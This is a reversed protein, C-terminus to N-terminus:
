VIELQRAGLEPSKADESSMSFKRLVWRGGAGKYLNVYVPQYYSSRAIGMTIDQFSRSGENFLAEFLSVVRKKYVNFKVGVSGPAKMVYEVDRVHSLDQEVSLDVRAKVVISHMSMNKVIINYVRAWRSETWKADILADVSSYLSKGSFSTNSLDMVSSLGMEIVGKCYSCQLLDGEKFFNFTGCEGCVIPRYDKVEEVSKTAKTGEQQWMDEQVVPSDLSGCNQVVSGYDLVICDVKHPHTRLGRGVTQVYLTASKMPRMLVVADIASHDFGESVKTVFVLHRLDEAKFSDLTAHQERIPQQSHIVGARQGMGVLQEYVLEAHEINICSWVVSKRDNVNLVGIADDVQAAIKARERTVLEALSKESYDGSGAVYRLGKLSFGRKSSVLRAPVLHGEVTLPLIGYRFDLSPWFRMKGTKSNVGYIYEGCIFPTATVGLLAMKPSAALLQKYFPPFQGEEALRHAEDFVCFSFKPLMAVKVRVLSQLTAVTYVKGVKKEGYSACYVGIQSEEAGLALLQDKIQGILAEKTVIFLFRPSAGNLLSRDYLGKVLHSFIFTKGAGTALEILVKDRGSRFLSLVKDIARQQYDRLQMCMGGVFFIECAM